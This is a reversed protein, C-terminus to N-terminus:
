AFRGRRKKRSEGPDPFRLVLPGGLAPAPHEEARPGERALAGRVHARHGDVDRWGALHAKDCYQVLAALDRTYNSDTHQSLQRETTLYRRFRKLWELSSANM